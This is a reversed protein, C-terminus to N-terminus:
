FGARSRRTSNFLRSSSCDEHACGSSNLDPNLCNDTIVKQSEGQMQLVLGQGLGSDSNRQDFFSREKAPNPKIVFAPSTPLGIM